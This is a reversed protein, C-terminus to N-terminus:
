EAHINYAKLEHKLQAWFMELIPETPKLAITKALSPACVDILWKLTDTKGKKPIGIAVKESNHSAVWAPVNFDAMARMLSSALAYCEKLSNSPLTAGLWHAVDGKCELEIRIWDTQKDHQEKAKDYIRLCKDSSRSGIYITWGDEQTGVPTLQPVRGKGIAPLRTQKSFDSMQMGSDFVDIAMDLRSVRAGIANLQKLVDLSDQGQGSIWNLASGSLMLHYAMDPREVHWMLVAGSEYREAASYGFLAKAEVDKLREGLIICDALKTSAHADM